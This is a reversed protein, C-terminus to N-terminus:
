VVNNQMWKFLEAFLPRHTPVIVKDVKEKLDEINFWSIGDLDDAAELAGAFYKSAFLFTMIGDTAKAPYRPDDVIMSCVYKPDTIQAGTEQDTEARVNAEATKFKKAIFGGPFRWMGNDNKKTGLLIQTCDENFIASDVTPFMVDYKNQTAWIVGARFDESARQKNGTVRRLESGSIIKESVLEATPFKGCYAKLFSDRSGYLLPIREGAVHKMIERDLNKSWLRDNGPVDDIYFVEVADKFTERIMAERMRFDLPNETTVKTQALGLFIMVRDHRAMVTRILDLHMEHLKHVQFRGVIVGIDQKPKENEGQVRM